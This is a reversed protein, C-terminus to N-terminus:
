GASRGVAGFGEVGRENRKVVKLVSVVGMGIEEKAIRWIKREREVDIM